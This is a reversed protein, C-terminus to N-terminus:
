RIDLLGEDILKRIRNRVRISRRVDEGDSGVAISLHDHREIAPSIFDCYEPDDCVCALIGLHEALRKIRHNQAKDATCIYLIKVGRLDEPTFPRQVFRFPLTKVTEPIEEAIFTVHDTLKALRQAKRIGEESGGILTIPTTSIDVAIPLYKLYM